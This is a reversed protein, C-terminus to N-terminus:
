KEPTLDVEVIVPRHDSLEITSVTRSIIKAHRPLLVWDIVSRPNYSRFTLDNSEPSHKLDTTFLESDFLLTMANHGNADQQSLPFGIPTSNFDGAAILAPGSEKVLDIIMQASGIRTAEDRHELHVALVRVSETNSLKLECILGRKKSGAIHEWHSYTPFDILQAKVIPYRSLIVNGFQLTFFPLAADCNSQQAVYRFGAEKAIVLAQNIGNTWSSNFDVENLVVVDLKSDRLFTSIESLRTRRQAKTGAWNSDALGRGHAINYTAIRLRHETSHVFQKSSTSEGLDWTKVARMSSTARVVVFWALNFLVLALLFLIIKRRRTRLM